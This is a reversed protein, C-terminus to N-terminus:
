CVYVPVLQWGNPTRVRQHLYCRLPYVPPGYYPAQGYYPPLGYYPLPEAISPAVVVGPGIGRSGRSFSRDPGPKGHFFGGPPGGGFHALGHTQANASNSTSIANFLVFASLLAGIKVM